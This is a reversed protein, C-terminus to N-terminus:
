QWGASLEANARDSPLSFWFTSGVGSVSQVGVQGDHAEALLKCIALGLGFGGMRGAPRAQHFKEFVLASETKSLGPGSDQVCIKVMRGPQTYVKVESAAPSFKIANSLYNILIQRMKAQDAWVKQTVCANVLEIKKAQALESVAGIAEQAVTSIEIEEKKLELKGAELKEIILLDDVLSMLLAVNEKIKTLKKHARSSVDQAYHEGVLIELAVQCAMLPSRLDHAIMQMMSKRLDSAKTLQASAEHLVVDLFAIEDSGPVSRDLPKGEPLSRANAVLQSLRGTINKTFVLILLIALVFNGVLGLAIETKLKERFKTERARAEELRALSRRLTAKGLRLDTGAAKFLVRFNKFRSLSDGAESPAISQLQAQITDFITRSQKIDNFLDPDDKVLQQLADFHATTEAISKALTAPGNAYTGTVAGALDHFSQGSCILLEDIRQVIESQQRVQASLQDARSVLEYLQLIWICELILPVLVLALAKHIIKGPFIM